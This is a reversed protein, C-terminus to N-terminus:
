QWILFNSGDLPTAVLIIGPSELSRHYLLDDLDSDKAGNDVKFFFTIFRRGNYIVAECDDPGGHHKPVMKM